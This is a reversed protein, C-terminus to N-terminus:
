DKDHLKINKPFEKSAIYVGPIENWFPEYDKIYLTLLHKGDEETEKYEILMCESTGLQGIQGNELTLEIIFMNKVEESFSNGDGYQGNLLYTSNRIIQYSIIGNQIKLEDEWEYIRNNESENGGHNAEAYEPSFDSNVQFIHLTLDM